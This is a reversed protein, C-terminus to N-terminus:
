STIADYLQERDQLNAEPAHHQKAFAEAREGMLKLEDPHHYVRDIADAWAQV